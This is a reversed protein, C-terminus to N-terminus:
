ELMKKMYVTIYDGTVTTACQYFCSMGQASLMMWGFSGLVLELNLRFLANILHNM